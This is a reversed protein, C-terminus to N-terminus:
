MKLKPLPPNLIKAIAKPFIYLADRMRNSKLGTHKKTSYFGVNNLINFVILEDGNDM